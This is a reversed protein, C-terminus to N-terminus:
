SGPPFLCRADADEVHRWHIRLAPIVLCCIGELMAGTRLNNAQQTPCCGIEVNTTSRDNTGPTVTAGANPCILPAGNQAIHRVASLM